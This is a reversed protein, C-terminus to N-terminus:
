QVTFRGIEIHEKNDELRRVTAITKAAGSKALEQGFPTQFELYVTIPAALKQEHNAFYHAYVTYTGPLPRVITFTEPGYGETFDDSMQGGTSTQPQSYYAWEGAPDLVWLDIDVDNANWGMVVRLGVPVPGLLAAPVGLKELDPRQLRNARTLLDNFEHLSTLQISNFRSDWNHSAVYWLMELARKIDGGSEAPARALSLAFDRYGQPEETRLSQALAFQTLAFDWQQWQRLKEALVRIAGVNEVQVESINSLV